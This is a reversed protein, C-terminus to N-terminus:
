KPRLSGTNRHNDPTIADDGDGRSDSRDERGPNRDPTSSAVTTATSPPQGIDWSVTRTLSGHSEFPKAWGIEAFRGNAADSVGTAIDGKGKDFNYYDQAEVTVDMIVKGGEVRVNAHSWQQHGGITKQWNETAPSSVTKPAGTIKFNRDGSQVYFDAALAARNIQDDVSQAIVSDERYAESYDFEQPKGNNEWYHRYMATADDLDSKVYEGALLKAQWKQKDLFDQFGGKKTNYIFTDDHVLKPRKPDGIEYSAHETRLAELVATMGKDVEAATDHLAKMGDRTTQWAKAMSIINKKGPMAYMSDAEAKRFMELVSNLDARGSEYSKQAAELTNSWATLGVHGAQFRSQLGKARAVMDDVSKSAGAAGAGTWVASVESSTMKKM